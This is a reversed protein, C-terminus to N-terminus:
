IHILSLDVDYRGIRGLMEPHSGPSLFDLTLPECEAGDDGQTTGDVSIVVSSSLAPCAVQPDFDDALNARVEQLLMQDGSLELLRRQCRDCAEVHASVKQFEASDEADHLLISLSADHCRM